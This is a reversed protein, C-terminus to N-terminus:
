PTRLPCLSSRPYQAFKVTRLPFPDHRYHKRRRAPRTPPRTRLPIAQASGYRSQSVVAPRLPSEHIACPRIQRDPRRAHCQRHRLKASCRLSRRSARIQDPPSSRHCDHRRSVLHLQRGSLSFSSSRLAQVSVASTRLREQACSKAHCRAGFRGARGGKSANNRRSSQETPDCRGASLLGPNPRIRNRRSEHQAKANRGCTRALTFECRPPGTFIHQRFSKGTGRALPALAYEM